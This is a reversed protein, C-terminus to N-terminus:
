GIKPEETNTFYFSIKGDGSDIMSIRDPKNFLEEVVPDYRQGNVATKLVIKKPPKNNEASM